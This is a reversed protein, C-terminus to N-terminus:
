SNVVRCRKVTSPQVFNYVFSVTEPIPNSKYRRQYIDVVTEGDVNPLNKSAGNYLLIQVMKFENLDNSYANGYIAVWHLPTNKNNDPQNIDVGADILSQIIPYCNHNVALHLATTCNPNAGAQLLLNVTDLKNSIVAKHLPTEQRGNKVNIDASTNILLRVIDTCGKSAAIHLATDYNQNRTDIYSQQIGKKTAIDLLCEVIDRQGYRAAAHLMTEGENLIGIDTGEVLILKIIDIYGKNVAFFLSERDWSPNLEIKAGANLLLRVIEINGSKLAHSLPSGNDKNQLKPNARQPKQNVNAELLSAVIDVYKNDIAVILPRQHYRPTMDPNANYKRLLRVMDLNGQEVAAYLPSKRYTNPRDDRTNSNTGNKLLKEVDDLNGSEVMDHISSM